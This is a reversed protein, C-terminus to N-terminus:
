KSSIVKKRYEKPSLGVINKFYTSFNNLSSYGLHTVIESIFLEEKKLLEKAKNIRLTNIYQFPTLGILEKFCRLYHNTSLMAVSAIDKLKLDKTYNADIYDKSYYIRKYIEERTSKKLFHFKAAEQESVKNKELLAKLFTYYYENLAISNDRQLSNRGYALLRAIKDTQAYQREFLFFGENKKVENDILKTHSTILESTAKSVFQPEFFVCFSTTEVSSDITLKYNTCENLILYSKSDVKYQRNALQYKAHGGYFSKVSLFCDGKWEYQKAKQHIIFNSM